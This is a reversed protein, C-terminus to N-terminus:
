DVIKIGMSRATGGVIKEAQEVSEANLDPMKISAIERLQAKTVTGATEAHPRASGKQVGAAQLLLSATAPTKVAVEFSRDEYITIDASVLLGRHAASGENFEKMVGVINVGYSGLVQGVKAVNANGGEQSIRVVGAVKSKKKKVQESM